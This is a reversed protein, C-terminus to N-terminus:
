AQWTAFAYAFDTEWKVWRAECKELAAQVMELAVNPELDELGLEELDYDEAAQDRLYHWQYVIDGDNNTIYAFRPPWIRAYDCIFGLEDCGKVIYWKEAPHINVGCPCIHKSARAFDIICPSGDERILINSPRFLKSLEYPSEKRIGCQHLTWYARATALRFEPTQVLLADKDDDAGITSGCKELVLCMIHTTDTSDGCRQVPTRAEFLGYFMPIEKGQLHLVRPDEYIRAENVLSKRGLETSAVKCVVDNTSTDACRLMETTAGASLRHVYIMINTPDWQCDGKSSHLHLPLQEGSETRSTTDLMTRLERGSAVDHMFEIIDEFRWGLPM